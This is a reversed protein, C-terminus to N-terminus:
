LLKLKPFAVTMKGSSSSSTARDRGTSRNNNDYYFESGLNNVMKLERFQLVKLFPLEGLMPVYELRPCNFLKFQIWHQYTILGSKMWTPYKTGSFNKISFMKLNFHPAELGELVDDDMKGDYNEGDNWCEEESLKTLYHIYNTAMIRATELNHTTVIVTSGVSGSKFPEKLQNWKEADESWVDDLVLLFRKSMLKGKLTRAIADLNSAVSKAGASEIIEKLVGQVEFEQYVYVWMRLDFHKVILEDNFVLKALSSKGVGGMGVIPIVLINQDNYNNVIKCVLLSRDEDIGVVKSDDTHFFSQLDARSMSTSHDGSSSEVRGLNLVSLAQERIGDLVKNIDELKLAMKLLFVFPNSRSFFNCVKNMKKNQIEMKQRFAEYNLEDVVDDARSDNSELSRLWKKVEENEAQQNEADQLVGQIITLTTRLKNLEGRQPHNDVCDPAKEVRRQFGMSFRNKLLLLPKM